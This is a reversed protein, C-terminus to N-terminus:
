CLWLLRVEIQTGAIKNQEAKMTRETIHLNQWPELCDGRKGLCPLNRHSNRQLPERLLHLPRDPLLTQMQCSHIDLLSGSNRYLHSCHPLLLIEASLVSTEQQTRFFFFFLHQTRHTWHVCCIWMTFHLKNTEVKEPMNKNNNNRKPRKSNM